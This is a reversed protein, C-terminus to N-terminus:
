SGQICIEAFNQHVLGQKALTWVNLVAPLAPLGVVSLEIPKKRTCGMEVMVVM